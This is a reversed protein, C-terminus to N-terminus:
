FISFMLCPWRTVKIPMGTCHLGFPFLCRKGKLRHYGMAFKSDVFFAVFFILLCIMCCRFNKNIINYNNIMLYVLIVVKLGVDLLVRVEAKSITFTHGLHLRGNM